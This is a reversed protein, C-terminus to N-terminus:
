PVDDNNAASRSTHHRRTPRSLTAARNQEELFIWYKAFLKENRTASPAIYSIILGLDTRHEFLISTGLRYIMPSTKFM